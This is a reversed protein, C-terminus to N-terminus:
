DVKLLQNITYAVRGNIENTGEENIFYLPVQNPEKIVRMVKFIEKSWRIDGARFNGSEKKNNSAKISYDLIRRVKQGIELGIVDGKKNPNGAIDQSMDINKPKTIRSNM